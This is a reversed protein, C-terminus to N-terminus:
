PELVERLDFPTEDVVYRYCLAIEATTLRHQNKLEDELIRRLRRRTRALKRSVTAEHEGLIRGTEALTLRQVYYCGLRLRDPPDLAALVTELVGRFLEALRYRDPGADHGITVDRRTATDPVDGADAELPEVRQGARVADIHRQALVSRLWTVLTSRGHFYRFLSRREVGSELSARTHGVGYLEAWLTDALERGAADDRLLVRAARYLPPRYTLVVHEWAVEDGAACLVALGLDAGRLSAIYHGITREDPSADQFRHGISRDVAQALAAVTLRGQLLPLQGLADAHLQSVQHGTDVMHM